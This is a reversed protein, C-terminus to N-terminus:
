HSGDAMTEGEWEASTGTSQNQSMERGLKSAWKRAGTSETRGECEKLSGRRKERGENPNGELISIIGM